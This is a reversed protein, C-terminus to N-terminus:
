HWKGSFCVCQNCDKKIRQKSEYVEGAYTCPCEAATICKGDLLVKGQPCHCGDICDNDDVIPKQIECTAASSPGCVRYEMDSPCEAPCRNESRWDVNVGHRACERFYAAMANCYSKNERAETGFCVDERCAEFYPTPDVVFKCDSDMIQSCLIVAQSSKRINEDTDTKCFQINESPPCQGNVEPSVWSNAFAVPTSNADIKDSHQFLDNEKDHDFDGCLGKLKGHMDDDVKIFVNEIGDWKVLINQSPVRAMIYNSAQKVSILGITNPLNLVQDNYLAIPKGTEEDHSMKINFGNFSVDLTRKCDTTGDCSKDNHLTVSFGQEDTTLIYSCKGGFRYMRGDFTRYHHEGWTMCYGQQDTPVAERDLIGDIFGQSHNDEINQPRAVCAPIENNPKWGDASNCRYYGRLPIVHEFMFGEKCQPWCLKDGSDPDTECHNFGNEPAPLDNCQTDIAYCGPFADGTIQPSWTGNNCAFIKNDNTTFGINCNIECMKIGFAEHCNVSANAPDSLTCEQANAAIAAFAYLASRWM